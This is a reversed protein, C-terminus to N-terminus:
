FAKLKIIQSKQPYEQENWHEHIALAAGLASAQSVEAAFVKIEQYHKALLQMFIPNKSFGGDVYINKPANQKSIVCATSAIQLQVIEHMLQHYAQKESKFQNLDLNAFDCDTLISKKTAKFDSDILSNDFAITKYFDDKIFFHKAIRKTQDEHIQGLFARSAKVKQGTYQLFNLCDNDLEKATLVSDNFPNMSICWTGTSILVFPQESFKLYPILASSSDHLGIGIKLGNKEFIENQSKIAPLIKLLNEDELWQHYDNQAFNWLMTHCGISTIDTYVEGSFVHSLFQPLHLAYVVKEFFSTKLHKWQLIQLGSNLNGLAPSATEM